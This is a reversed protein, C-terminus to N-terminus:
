VEEPTGVGCSATGGLLSNGGFDELLYGEESERRHRVSV